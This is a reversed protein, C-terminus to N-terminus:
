VGAISDIKLYTYHRRHGYSKHYDKKPKYKYVLLKRGRFSEGVTASVKAGSVYPKGISVNDGDKLMLVSDIDIKAGPEESIRDVAIESGNEVKYQKGKYDILAYM